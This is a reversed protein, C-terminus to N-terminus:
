FSKENIAQAFPKQYMETVCLNLIFEVSMLTERCLTKKSNESHCTRLKSLSFPTHHPQIPLDGM